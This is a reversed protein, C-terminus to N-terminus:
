PATGSGGPVPRQTTECRGAAGREQFSCAGKGAKNGM